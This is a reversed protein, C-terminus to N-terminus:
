QGPIPDFLFEFAGTLYSIKYYGFLPTDDIWCNNLYLYIDDGWWTLEEPIAIPILMKYSMDNLDLVYMPSTPDSEWFAVRDNEVSFSDFRYRDSIMECLGTDMEIRYLAWNEEKSKTEDYSSFYLYNADQRADENPVLIDTAYGIEGNIIDITKIRSLPYINENFGLLQDETAPIMELCFAVSGYLFFRGVMFNTLQTLNGDFDMKYLFSNDPHTFYLSNDFCVFNRGNFDVIREKELGYINSQYTGYRGAWILGNDCKYINVSFDNTLLTVTKNQKNFYYIGSSNRCYILEENEFIPVYGTPIDTTQGDPINNKYYNATDATNNPPQTLIREDDQKEQSYENVISFDSFLDEYSFRVKNINEEALKRAKFFDNTLENWQDETVRFFAFDGQTEDFFAFEAMSESIMIGACIDTYRPLAVMYSIDECEKETNQFRALYFWASYEVDGNQDLQFFAYNIPSAGGYLWLKRSGLLRIWTTDIEHWLVFSNTDPYYKVIYIFRTEDTICLEPAGDNDMDFFYYEFNNPDYSGNLRINTRIEGFESIYFVEQTTTDLFTIECNLLKIFQVLYYGYTATDGTEFKGWFDISKYADKIIAYAENDVYSINQYPSIRKDGDNEKYM